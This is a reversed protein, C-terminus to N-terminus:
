ERAPGLRPEIGLPPPERFPTAGEATGAQGPRDQLASEQERALYMKGVRGTRIERRTAILDGVTLPEGRDRWVWRLVNLADASLGSGLEALVSPEVPRAHGTAVDSQLWARLIFFAALTVAVVAAWWLYPNIRNLFDVTQQGLAMLGDYRVTSGFNLLWRCVLLWLIIAVIIVAARLILRPAALNLLTKGLLRSDQRLHAPQTPTMM